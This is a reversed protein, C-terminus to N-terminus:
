KEINKKGNRYRWIEGLPPMEYLTKLMDSTWGHPQYQASIRLMTALYARDPSTSPVGHSRIENM